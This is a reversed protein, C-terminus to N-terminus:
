LPEVYYSGASKWAELFQRSTIYRGGQNTGTDNIYYGMVKGTSNEVEAGTVVFIHGGNAFRPDNWLKGSNANVLLMKGTLVSKDFEAATAGFRKKIPQDLLNGMHQWPTGGNARRNPDSAKGSFFGRALAETYLRNEQQKMTSPDAVQKDRETKMVVQSAIGCTSGDQHFVFKAREEPDGVTQTLGFLKMAKMKLTDM